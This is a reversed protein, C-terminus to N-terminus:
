IQHPKNIINVLRYANLYYIIIYQLYTIKDCLKINM